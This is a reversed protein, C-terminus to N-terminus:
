VYDNGRVKVFVERGWARFAIDWAAQATPFAFALPKSRDLILFKGDQVAIVIHKPLVTFGGRCLTADCAFCEPRQYAVKQRSGIRLKLPRGCSGIDCATACSM